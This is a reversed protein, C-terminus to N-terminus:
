VIRHTFYNLLFGKKYLFLRLTFLLLAMNITFLAVAMVPFSEIISLLFDPWLTSFMNMNQFVTSIFYSTKSNQWEHLLFLFSFPATGISFVLFFAFTFLIKRTKRLEKELNVAEIIRDFLGLSPKPAQHTAPQFSNHTM